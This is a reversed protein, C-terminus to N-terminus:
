KVLKEIIMKVFDSRISKGFILNQNWFDPSSTIGLKVLKDVLLPISFNYLGQFIAQAETKERNDNWYFDREDMYCFESIIAPAKTYRIVYYYDQGPTTESERTLLGNQRSPMQSCALYEKGISNSLVKGVGGNVSSYIEFGHGGGANHHISVFIDSQSNNSLNCRDSLSVDIDSYRTMIVSFGYQLLLDKVRNAVGLNINKELYNGNVAGTEKGGHGPDLCIKLM